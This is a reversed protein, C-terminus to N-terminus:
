LNEIRQKKQVHFIKAAEADFGDMMRVAVIYQSKLVSLSLVSIVLRIIARCLM